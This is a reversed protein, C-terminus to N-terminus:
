QGSLGKQQPTDSNRFFDATGQAVALTSALAEAADAGDLPAQPQPV